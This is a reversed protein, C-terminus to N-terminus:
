TNYFHKGTTVKAHVKHLPSIKAMSKIIIWIAVSMYNEKLIKQYMCGSSPQGTCGLCTAARPNAIIFTTNRHVIDMNHIITVIKVIKCLSTTDVFNWCNLITCRHVIPHLSIVSRGKRITYWKIDNQKIMLFIPKQQHQNPQM